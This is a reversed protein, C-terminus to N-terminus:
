YNLFQLKGSGSPGMLYVFEGTAIEFSVGDLIKKEGYMKTVNAFNIM